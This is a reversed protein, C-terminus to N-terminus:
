TGQRAREEQEIRAVDRAMAALISASARRLALELGEQEMQPVNTNVQFRYRIPSAAAYSGVVEGRRVLLAEVNLTYDTDFWIVFGLPFITRALASKWFNAANEDVADRVLLRIEWVPTVDPPVPYLVAQFLRADRLDDSVRSLVGTEAVRGAAFSQVRLGVTMGLPEPPAGFRAGEDGLWVVEHACGVALIAM